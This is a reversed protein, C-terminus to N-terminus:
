VEGLLQHYTVNNPTMTVLEEYCFAAETFQCRRKYLEALEMWQTPSCM